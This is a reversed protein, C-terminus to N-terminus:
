SKEEKKEKEEEMEDPNLGLEVMMSDIDEDTEPIDLPCEKLGGLYAELRENLKSIEETIKDLRGNKAQRRITDIITYPEDPAPIGSYEGLTLPELPSIYDCDSEGVKLAPIPCSALSKSEELVKLLKEYHPKFIYLSKPDEPDLTRLKEEIKKLENYVEETKDLCKNEDMILM